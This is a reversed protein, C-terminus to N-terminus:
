PNSSPKPISDALPKTLPPSNDKKSFAIGGTYRKPHVRVDDLLINLSNITNGLKALTADDFVMKSVAGKENLKAAFTKLEALTSHLADITSDLKAQALKDSVKKFNTITANLDKRSDKFTTTLSDINQLTHALPGSKSNVLIKLENSTAAFNAVMARLNNKTAPDFTSGIVQVVSDLSKLGVELKGLVPALQSTVKDFMGLSVAALITDGDEVWAKDNGLRVDLNATGLLSANISAISNKPIHIDKTLNMVVVVGTVNQDKEVLKSVTGVQLGNVTVPNSPTLGEVTPFVAYIQTTKDFLSKGKLFNFGLILLTIAIATLAGVKTENSIKM